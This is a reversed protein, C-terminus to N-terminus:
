TREVNFSQIVSLFIIHLTKNSVLANYSNTDNEIKMNLEVVEKESNCPLFRIINTDDFDEVTVAEKNALKRLLFQTQQHQRRCDRIEEKVVRLEELVEDRFDTFCVLDLKLILYRFYGCIQKVKHGQIGDLLIVKARLPPSNHMLSVEM